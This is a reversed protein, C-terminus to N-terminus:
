LTRYMVIFPKLIGLRLPKVQNYEVEASKPQLSGFFKLFLFLFLQQFYVLLLLLLLDYCTLSKM